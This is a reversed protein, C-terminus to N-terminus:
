PRKCLLTKLFDIQQITWNDSPYERTLREVDEREPELGPIPNILMAMENPSLLRDVDWFFRDPAQSLALIVWNPANRLLARLTIRFQYDQADRNTCRSCVLEPAPHGTFIQRAAQYRPNNWVELFTKSGELNGFDDPEDNSVCCPGVSGGPFVTTGFYLWDCKQYRMSKPPVIDNYRPIRLKRHLFTDERRLAADLVPGSSGFTQIDPTCLQVDPEQTDPPACGPFFELLDVGLEEAMEKARKLETQNHRFVLFRWEVLPFLLGLARKRKTLRAINDVVLNFNGGVRYRSYTEPSTGDLSICIAGLGSGLIEDIREDSLPLSLNTSIVTFIEFQQTLKLIEGIQRNLLPEGTSFYWIVFATEGLEKLVRENLDPSLLGPSRRITRNGVSCYPCSLQCHTSADLTLEFPHHSVQTARERRALLCLLFNLYKRFRLEPDSVSPLIYQLSQM